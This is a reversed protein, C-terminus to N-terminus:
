YVCMWDVVYGVVVFGDDLMTRPGHVHFWDCKMKDM